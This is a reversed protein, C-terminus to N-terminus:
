GQLKREFQSKVNFNSLYIFSELTSCCIIGRVSFVNYIMAQTDGDQKKERPERDDM